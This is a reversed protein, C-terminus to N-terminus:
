MRRWDIVRDSGSPIACALMTQTRWKANEAAKSKQELREAKKNDSLRREWYATGQSSM